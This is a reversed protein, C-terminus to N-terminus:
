PAKWLRVSPAGNVEAIFKIGTGKLARRIVDVHARAVSPDAHEIEAIMIEATSVGALKALQWPQMKLLERAERIQAATTTVNYPSRKGGGIM